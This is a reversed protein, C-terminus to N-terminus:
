ESLGVGNRDTYVHRALKGERWRLEHAAQEHIELGSVRGRGRLTVLAITTDSGLEVTQELEVEFHEWAQDLDELWGRVGEHGHYLSGGAQVFRSEFVIEPHMEAIMAPLDRAGFAAYFRELAQRHVEVNERSMAALIAGRATDIAQMAM